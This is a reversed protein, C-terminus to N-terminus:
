ECRYALQDGLRGVQRRPAPQQHVILGEHLVPEGKRLAGCEHCCRAIFAQKFSGERPQPTPQAVIQPDGPIM